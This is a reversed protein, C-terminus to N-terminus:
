FDWFRTPWVSPDRVMAGDFIRGPQLRLGEKVPRPNPTAALNKPEVQAIPSPASLFYTVNRLRHLEMLLMLGQHPNGGM